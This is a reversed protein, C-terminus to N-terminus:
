NACRTKAKNKAKKEAKHWLRGLLANLRGNDLEACGNFAIFVVDFGDLAARHRRFHERVLRKIRNRQVAKRSVKKSVTVGLRCTDLRNEGVYLAAPGAAIKRRAKFVRKFDSGALLRHQKGFGHGRTGRVRIM